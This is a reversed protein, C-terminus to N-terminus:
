VPEIWESRNLLLLLLLLTRSSIHSHILMRHLSYLQMMMLQLLLLELRLLLLLLRVFLNPYAIAAATRCESSIRVTTATIM